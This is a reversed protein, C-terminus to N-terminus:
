LAYIATAEQKISQHRMSSQQQALWLNRHWYTIKKECLNCIQPRWNQISEIHHTWQRFITGATLVWVSRWLRCDVASVLTSVTILLHWPWCVSVCVLVCLQSGWALGRSHNPCKLWRHSLDPIRHSKTSLHILQEHTHTYLPMCMHDSSVAWHVTSCISYDDCGAREYQVCVCSASRNITHVVM